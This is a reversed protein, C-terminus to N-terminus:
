LTVGSLAILGGTVLAIITLVTFIPVFQSRRKRVPMSHIGNSGAWPGWLDYDTM